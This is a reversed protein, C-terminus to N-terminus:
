SFDQVVKYQNRNQQNFKRMAINLAHMEAHCSCSNSTFNNQFRTRCSNYGIGIIRNNSVVVCGHKMNMQSHKSAEIARNIFKEDKKSVM